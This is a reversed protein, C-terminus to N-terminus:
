KNKFFILKIGTESGVENKEGMMKEMWLWCGNTLSMIIPKKESRSSSSM